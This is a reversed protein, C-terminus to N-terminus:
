SDCPPIVGPQWQTAEQVGGRSTLVALGVKDLKDGDVTVM